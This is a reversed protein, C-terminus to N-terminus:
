RVACFAAAVDAAKLQTTSLGEETSSERKRERQTDAPAAAEAEAVAAAAKVKVGGTRTKFTLRRPRQTTTLLLPATRTAKILV